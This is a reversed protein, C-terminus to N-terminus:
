VIHFMQACNQITYDEQRPKQDHCKKVLNFQEFIM